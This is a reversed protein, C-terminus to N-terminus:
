SSLTQDFDFFIRRDKLILRKTKKDAHSHSFPVWKMLAVTLIGKELTNERRFLDCDDVRRQPVRVGIRM